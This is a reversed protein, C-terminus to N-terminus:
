GWLIRQAKSATKVFAWRKVEQFKDESVYLGTGIMIDVQEQTMGAKHILFNAAECTLRKTM